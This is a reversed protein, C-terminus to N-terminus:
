PRWLAMLGCLLTGIAAFALFHSSFGFRIGAGIGFTLYACGVTVVIWRAMAIDRRLLAVALMVVIGLAAMCLSGFLWGAALASWLDAGVRSQTLARSLVPWGLFAHPLALLCVVVGLALTLREAITNTARTRM